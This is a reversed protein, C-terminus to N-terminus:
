TLEETPSGIRSLAIAAAAAVGLSEVEQRVPITWRAECANVIETPLGERESGLCLTSVDAAPESDGGHAVLALRP